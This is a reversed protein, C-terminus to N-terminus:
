AVCQYKRGSTRPVLSQPLIVTSRQLDTLAACAFALIIHLSRCSHKYPLLKLRLLNIILALFMGQPNFANSNSIRQLNGRSTRPFVAVGLKPQPVIWLRIAANCILSAVINCGSTAMETDSFLVLRQGIRCTIFAAPIM